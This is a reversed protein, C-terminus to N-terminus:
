FDILALGTSLMTLLILFALGHSVLCVGQIRLFHAPPFLDPADVHYSCGGVFGEKEIIGLLITVGTLVYILPGVFGAHWRLALARTSPSLNAALPGGFARVGGVFQAIFLLIVLVGMWSHLSYLNAIFGSVPDNHSKFVALLGVVASLSATLWGSAHLLKVTSRNLHTTTASQFALTAVTMFSFATVMMLPHWNFVQKSQGQQWSLGGLMSIWGFVVLIIFLALVHALVRAYRKVKPIMEAHSDEMPADPALDPELVSSATSHDVLPTTNDVTAADAMDPNEEAMACNVITTTPITGYWVM